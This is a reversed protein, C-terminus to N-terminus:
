EEYILDAPLAQQELESFEACYDALRKGQDACLWHNELDIRILDILASRRIATADPLFTALDPPAGTAEWAAIFEDVM